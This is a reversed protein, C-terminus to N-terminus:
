RGFRHGGGGRLQAARDLALRGTKAELTVEPLRAAVEDGPDVLDTAARPGAGERQGRDDHRPVLLEVLHAVRLHEGLGFALQHEIADDVKGTLDLCKALRYHAEPAQSHGAYDKLFAEYEEAAKVTNGERDLKEARRFIVEPADKAHAMTAVFSFLLVPVMVRLLRRRKRAGAHNM